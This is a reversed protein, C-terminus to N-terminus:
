SPPAKGPAPIAGTRIRAWQYVAEYVGLMASLREDDGPLAVRFGQHIARIGTSEAHVPPLGKSLRYVSDRLFEAMLDLAPDKGALGHKVLFADFTTTGKEADNYYEAGKAHFTRAGAKAAEAFLVSEEFILIEAAPDIFRRLLWVCAPRNLGLNKRTAWKM